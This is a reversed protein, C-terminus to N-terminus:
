HCDNDHWCEGIITSIAPTGHCGLACGRDVINALMRRALAFWPKPQAIHSSQETELM